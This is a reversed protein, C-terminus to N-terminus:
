SGNPGAIRYFSGDDIVEFDQTGEYFIQFIVEYEVRVKENINGVLNPAFDSTNLSFDEGNILQNFCKFNRIRGEVAM